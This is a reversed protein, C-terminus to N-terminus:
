RREEDYLGMRLARAAASRPCRRASDQLRERAARRLAPPQDLFEARLIKDSVALLMIPQATTQFANEDATYM